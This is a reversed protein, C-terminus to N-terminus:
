FGCFVASSLSGASNSHHLWRVAFMFANQQKWDNSSLERSTQHWRSVTELRRRKNCVMQTDNQLMSKLTASILLKDPKKEGRQFPYVLAIREIVTQLSVLSFSCKQKVNLNITNNQQVAVVTTTKTTMKTAARLLSWASSSWNWPNIYEFITSNMRHVLYFFITSFAPLVCFVILIDDAHFSGLEDQLSSAYAVALFFDILFFRRENKKTM